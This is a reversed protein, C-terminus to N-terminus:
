RSCSNVAQLRLYPGVEEIIRSRGPGSVLYSGETESGSGFAVDDTLSGLKPATHAVQKM